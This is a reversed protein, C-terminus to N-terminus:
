RTNAGPAPAASCEAPDAAGEGEAVLDAPVLDAGGAAVAEARDARLLVVLLRDAPTTKANNQGAVELKPGIGFSRSVRLNVAVAAPGNGMNVPIISEGAQPVTDFSGYSTTVVNAPNSAATAFAPRDNFFNDGTLDNATVINFPRGAQAILFPNFTIGWPGTYSGMLFLMNRAAFSARGYDQSLNYANSATGTDANAVTFNYFGMLSFNPTFHANINAILQNQKFVAEPYYENVIGLNPNPRV